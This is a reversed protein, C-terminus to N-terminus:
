QTFMILCANALCPVEEGAVGHEPNWCHASPVDTFREREPCQTNITVDVSQQNAGSCERKPEVLHPVCHKVQRGRANIFLHRKSSTGEKQATPRAHVHGVASSVCRDGDGIAKLVCHEVKEKLRM